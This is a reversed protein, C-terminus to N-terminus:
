KTTVIDKDITHMQTEGHWVKVKSEPIGPNSNIYELRGILYWLLRKFRPDFYSRSNTSDLSGDGNSGHNGSIMVLKQFFLGVVVLIFTFPYPHPFSPATAAAGFIVFDVQRTFIFFLGSLSKDLILDLYNRLFPKHKKLFM